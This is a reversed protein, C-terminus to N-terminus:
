VFVKSQGIAGRAERKKINERKRQKYTQNCKKRRKRRRRNRQRERDRGRESIFFFCTSLKIIVPCFLSFVCSHKHNLRQIICNISM